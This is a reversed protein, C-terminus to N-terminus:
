GPPQGLEDAADSADVGTAGALLEQFERHIFEYSSGVRRMWRREPEACWAAFSIPRIGFVERTLRRSVRWHLLWADVGFVLAFVVGALAAASLGVLVSPGFADGLSSDNARWIGVCLGTISGFLCFALLGYILGSVASRRLVSWGSDAGADDEPRILGTASRLSLMILYATGGLVWIVLGIEIAVARSTGAITLGFAASLGIYGSFGYSVTLHGITERSPRMGRVINRASVGISPEEKIRFPGDRSNLLGLITLGALLGLFNLSRLRGTAEFDGFLVVSSFLVFVLASIVFRLRRFDAPRHPAYLYLEHDWFVQKEAENMKKALWRLAFAARDARETTLDRMGVELKLDWIRRRAENVDLAILEEIDSDRYALLTTALRLPVSFLTLLAQNGQQLGEVVTDWGTGLSQESRILSVIHDADLGKLVVTDDAKIGNPALQLYERVRSTLVFPRKAAGGSYVEIAELCASRLHLTVEDLGDLVPLVIGDEVVFTAAAPSLAYRTSLESAMWPVLEGEPHSQHWAAWEALSFLEALPAGGVARKTVQGVISLATVSKGAGPLGLVVLRSPAEAWAIAVDDVNLRPGFIRLKAAGGSPSNIWECRQCGVNMLESTTVMSALQAKYAGPRGSDIRTSLIGLKLAKRLSDIEERTPLPVAFPGGERDVWRNFYPAAFIQTPIAVVAVVVALVAWSGAADLHKPRVIVLWGVVVVSSCIAFIALSILLPRVPRSRTPHM